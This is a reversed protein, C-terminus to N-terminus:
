VSRKRCKWHRASLEEPPQGGPPAPKLVIIWLLNTEMKARARGAEKKMSEQMEKQFLKRAVPFHVDIKQITESPTTTKRRTNLLDDVRMERLGQSQIAPPAPEKRTRSTRGSLRDM